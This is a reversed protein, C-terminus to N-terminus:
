LNSYVYNACWWRLFKHKLNYAYILLGTTTDMGGMGTYEGFTM